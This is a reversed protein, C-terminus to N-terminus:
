MERLPLARNQKAPSIDSQVGGPFSATSLQEIRVRDLAAHIAAKSPASLDVIPLRCEDSCLGMLSAAYKIGAPSPERFLAAHLPVLREHLALADQYRQEACLTQLQSCLAPLVNATVSICGKGGNASYALATIDDGSLFSFPKRIRHREHCIRGVCHPRNAPPEWRCWVM